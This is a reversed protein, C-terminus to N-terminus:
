RSKRSSVASMHVNGVLVAGNSLVNAEKTSGQESDMLIGM